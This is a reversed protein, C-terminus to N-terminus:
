TITSKNNSYKPYLKMIPTDFSDICNFIVQDIMNWTPVLHLANRFANREEEELSDLCRSLLFDVNDDDVTGNRM